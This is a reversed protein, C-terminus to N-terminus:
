TVVMAAAVATVAALDTIMFINSTSYVAADSNTAAIPCGNSGLRRFWLIFVGLTDLTPSRGLIANSKGDETYKETRPGSVRAGVLAVVGDCTRVITSGTFNYSGMQVLWGGGWIWHGSVPYVVASIITSYICYSIFKARGAM